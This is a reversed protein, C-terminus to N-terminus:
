AAGPNGYDLSRHSSTPCSAISNRRSSRTVSALSSGGSAASRAGQDPRAPLSSDLRRGAVERRSRHRRQPARGAHQRDIGADDLTREIGLSGLEAIAVSVITQGANIQRDARATQVTSSGRLSSRLYRPRTRLAWHSSGFLIENAIPRHKSNCAYPCPQQMRKCRLPRSAVAHLPV